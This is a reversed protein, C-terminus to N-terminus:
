DDHGSIMSRIHRHADTAPIAFQVMGGGYAASVLSGRDDRILNRARAHPDAYAETEMLRGMVGQPAPVATAPPPVITERVRQHPDASEMAFGVNIGMPGAIALLGLAILTRSM